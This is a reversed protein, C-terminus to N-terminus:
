YSTGRFGWVIEWARGSGDKEDWGGGSASEDKNTVGTLMQQSIREHRLTHRRQQFQGRSKQVEPSPWGDTPAKANAPGDNDDEDEDDSRM